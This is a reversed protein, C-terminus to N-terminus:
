LLIVNLSISTDGSGRNIVPNLAIIVKSDSYSTIGVLGAITGVTSAVSGLYSYTLFTFKLSLGQYLCAASSCTMVTELALM